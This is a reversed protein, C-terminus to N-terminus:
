PQFLPEIGRPLALNGGNLVFSRVRPKSRCTTVPRKKRPKELSERLICDTSEEVAGGIRLRPM